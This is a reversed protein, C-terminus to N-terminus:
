MCGGTQGWRSITSKTSPSAIKFGTLVAEVDGEPTVRSVAGTLDAADRHIFYFAGNHWTLGVVATMVGKGSLNVVESAQGDEVRLIADTEGRRAVSFRRSRGRVHWRERGLHPEHPTLTSAVTSLPAKDASQLNASSRPPPSLYDPEFRRPRSGWCAPHRVPRPLSVDAHMPPAALNLVSSSIQPVPRQAPERLFRSFWGATTASM